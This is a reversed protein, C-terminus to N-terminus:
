AVGFDWDRPAAQQTATAGSLASGSLSFATADDTSLTILNGIRGPVTAEVTVVNSAVTASVLGALSADANIAAALNTACEGDDAGDEFDTGEVLDVGGITVTDTEANAQTCTITASAKTVNTGSEVRATIKANKVGGAVGGLFNLLKQIGVRKHDAPEMLMDDVTAPAEDGHVITLYTIGTAM